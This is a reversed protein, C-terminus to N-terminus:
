VSLVDKLSAPLFDTEEVGSADSDMADAHESGFSTCVSGAASPKTVVGGMETAMKLFVIEGQDLAFESLGGPQALRLEDSVRVKMPSLEWREVSPEPLAAPFMYPGNIGPPPLLCPANIGPPGDLGPPLAMESAAIPVEEDEGKSLGAESWGMASASKRLWGPTPQQWQDWNADDAAAAAM